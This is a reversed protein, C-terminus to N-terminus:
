QKKTRPKYNSMETEVKKNVADKEVGTLNKFEKQYDEMAIAKRRVSKAQWYSAQKLEEPDGKPKRQTEKPSGNVECDPEHPQATKM